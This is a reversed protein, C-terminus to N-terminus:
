VYKKIKKKLQKYLKIRRKYNNKTPLGWPTVSHRGGNTRGGHPHDVPNMAVGRVTPRRGMIRNRGAKGLCIEKYNKNSVIGITAFSKSSIYRTKKSPLRIETFKGHNQILQVSVGASKGYREKNEKSFYDTVNSIFTGAPINLLKLRSGNYLQISHTGRVVISGPYYTQLATENFFSKSELNFNISTFSSRNSDYSIGIIISKGYVCNFIPRYNKKAGQQKHWSTIHGTSSSRGCRKKFALKLNKFVKFNKVLLNKRLLKAHRVSPSIPRSESIKM